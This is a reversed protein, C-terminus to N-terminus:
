REMRLKPFRLIAGVNPGDERLNDIDQGKERGERTSTLIAEEINEM